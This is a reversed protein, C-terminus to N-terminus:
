WPSGILTFGSWYYPHNLTKASLNGLEPPLLIAQKEDLQLYGKELKVEGKLLKIQAKRLAEAKIKSEQLQGYFATMLGLTGEDSVYWLSALASKVGAQVALGAFGLEAREDGLATRCSSLVLLEVAPKNWGLQRLQNLGLRETQWLQIYSNEPSGPNFESHTALHIIQYPYDRRQRILNNITFEQNIFLQGSWLTHTILNLETEVAPLPQLDVFQNAGMALVKTDKLSKYRTDLLSLSPILSLSYKEILFQQGDHLAAMPLSRLGSDLSLLLTEIDGDKLQSEIPAILWRYLQQSSALYRDSNRERGNTIAARFEQVKAMLEAHSVEVRQLKLEGKQTLVVLDLDEKRSMVYVVAAHTGTERYIRQLVSAADATTLSFGVAEQGLYEAFEDRRLEELGTIGGWNRDNLQTQNPTLSLNNIENMPLDLKQQSNPPKLGPFGMMAPTGMGPGGNGPILRPDLQLITPSAPSFSGPTMGVASPSTSSLVTQGQANVSVHNAPSNFSSGTLLQPLALPNMPVNGVTATVPVELNLMQGMGSLQVFNGNGVPTPQPASNGPISHPSPSTPNTLFTPHSNPPSFINNGDMPQNQLQMFNGPMASSSGPSLVPSNNVPVAPFFLASNLHSQRGPSVTHGHPEVPQPVTGSPTVPIQAVAPLTLSNLVLLTILRATLPNAKM